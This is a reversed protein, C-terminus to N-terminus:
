CVMINLEIEKMFFYFTISVMLTRKRGRRLRMGEAEGFFVDQLNHGDKWGFKYFNM